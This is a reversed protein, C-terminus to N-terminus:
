FLKGPWRNSPTSKSAVVPAESSTTASDTNSYNSNGADNYARVRYYYTTDPSLGMDSYTTDDASTTDIEAWDSGNPSREIRFGTEDSANDTWSLDIQSSSIATATLDTPAAPPSAIAGVYNSYPRAIPLYLDYRTNPDYLQWIERDTLARSYGRLEGMNGSSWIQYGTGIYLVEQRNANLPAGADTYNSLLKGDLYFSWTNDGSRRTVAFHHLQNVTLTQSTNRYGGDVFYRLQGSSRIHIMIFPSGDNPSAAVTHQFIGRDSVDIATPRLWFAITTDPDTEGTRNWPMQIYQGSYSVLSNGIEADVTGSPNGTRTITSKGTLDVPSLIWPTFLRELGRYQPSDKNLVFSGPLPTRGVWGRPFIRM